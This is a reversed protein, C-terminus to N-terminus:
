PRPEFRTAFQGHGAIALERLRQANARQQAEVSQALMELKTRENQLMGGEAAIRAQLELIAKQDTAGGIADILQQLAAFRDSSNALAEHSLSQLLAVAQREAQLQASAPPPLSALQPASLVENRRLAAQLDAALRPYARSAQLAGTLATWDPPLYNRPTGALLRGMGRPGSMSDFAQQAQALQKRATALQQELTQVEAILQTVSAVDIVAFQAQAAPAGTCLAAWALLSRAQRNM